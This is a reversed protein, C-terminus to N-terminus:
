DAMGLWIQSYKDSCDCATVTMGGNTLTGLYVEDGRHALWGDLNFGLPGDALIWEGNYKRSIHVHTGTSHGSECSPYGIPDGRTLTAGVPARGDAALHLYYIVWGTRENGDEDLDLALGTVDSRVVLGNALATAFDSEHPIFCGSRDSPPAFDLAAFPEGSGFGTHPGGTLTWTHDGQFPLSLDPQQLSGPVLITNGTWPDGFLGSYIRYIGSPGTAFSYTIGSYIKSFYYEMAVSGANQWPDPRVLSGDPLEFETLQGSRWGYYGNNLINAALVLQLYPSEYYLKTFGLIRKHAPPQSQSLAGAQFELIALLLRPNVSYGAALYDVIEAGSLKARSRTGGMESPFDFYTNLWGPHSAVFASTNFGIVEPGNVFATDPLIKFSSSWLARYYIPIRMPMGPPMTTADSPINPNTDLIEEVSTNFRAALAPLTDGSQATYDVLEGPKFNPRSPLPTIAVDTVEPMFIPNGPISTPTKSQQEILEPTCAQLGLCVLVLVSLKRNSFSQIKKEKQNESSIRGNKV